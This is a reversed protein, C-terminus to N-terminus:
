LMDKDKLMEYLITRVLKFAEERTFGAIVFADQLAKAEHAAAQFEDNDVNDDPV